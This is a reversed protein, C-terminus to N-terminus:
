SATVASVSTLPAQVAGINIVTAGSVQAVSSVVGTISTTAPVGAGASNVAQIALKYTGDPATQGSSTKGDWTFAHDGSTLNPATGSWVVKGSSDTITMAAQSAAQSLNYSWAAKGGSLSTTDGSATVTKGILGVAGTVGGGSQTVLSQLLKNSLLQQQVGTMQVLQQTFSNTDLPSTPDQNKLQSTLLTLFTQYSSAINAQGSALADTSAGASSVTSTTPGQNSLYSAIDVSM